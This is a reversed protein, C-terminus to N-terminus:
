GSPCQEQGMGDFWEWLHEAHGGHGCGKCWVFRGRVWMSCVVCSNAWSDCESCRALGEERDP